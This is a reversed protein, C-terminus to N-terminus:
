GRGAPTLMACARRLQERRGFARVQPSARPAGRVGAAAWGLAYNLAGLVRPRRAVRALTGALVHLPHAGYGWACEGFRRYGRAAGDHTATPRLHLSDGGPTEFSATRWGKM